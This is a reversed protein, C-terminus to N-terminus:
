SQSLVPLRPLADWQEPNSAMARASIASMVAKFSDVVDRSANGSTLINISASEMMWILSYYVKPDLRVGQDEFYRDDFLQVMQELLAARRPALPSGARLAEETMMRILPGLNAHYDFFLEVCSVVFDSLSASQKKVAKFRSMLLGAAIEYISELVEVKNKFYKYFTRRSVNAADLLDQVTTDEVGKSTFVGIANFLVDSKAGQGPLPFSIESTALDLERETAQLLLDVFENGQSEQVQEM